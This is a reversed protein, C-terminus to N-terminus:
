ISAFVAGLTIGEITTKDQTSDCPCFHVDNLIDWLKLGDESDFVSNLFFEWSFNNGIKVLAAFNPFKMIKKIRSARSSDSSFQDQSLKSIVNNCELPWFNLQKGM